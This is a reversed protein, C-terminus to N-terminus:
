LISQRGLFVRQQATMNQYAELSAFDSLCIFKKRIWATRESLAFVTHLLADRQGYKELLSITVIKKHDEFTCDLFPAKMKFERLLMWQYREDVDRKPVQWVVCRHDHSCKMTQWTKKPHCVDRRTHLPTIRFKVLLAFHGIGPFFRVSSSRSSFEDCDHVLKKRRSHHAQLAFRSDCM